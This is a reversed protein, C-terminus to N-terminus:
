QSVQSTASSLTRRQAPPVIELLNIGVVKWKRPKRYRKLMRALSEDIVRKSIVSAHRVYRRSSGPRRVVLGQHTIVDPSTEREQRVVNIITGLPIRRIRKQAVDIPLYPLDYHGYPVRDSDLPLTRAFRRKQWRQRTLNLHIFRTKHAGVHVTVDRVFGAATLEPIWQSTILHRRAQFTPQGDTYRIQDLLPKLQAYDDCHALALATEVFTTCDFANLRFRPDRDIGAEEGLASRLYPAALLGRTVRELHASWDAPDYRQEIEAVLDDHHLLSYLNYPRTPLAQPALSTHATQEAAAIVPLLM